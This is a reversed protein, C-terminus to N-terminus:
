FIGTSAFLDSLSESRSILNACMLIQCFSTNFVEQFQMRVQNENVAAIGNRTYVLCVKREKGEERSM